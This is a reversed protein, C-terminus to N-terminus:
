PVSTGTTVFPHVTQVPNGQHISLLLPFTASVIPLYNYLTSFTVSFSAHILPLSPAPYLHLLPLSPLNSIIALSFTLRSFPLLFHYKLLPSLSVIFLYLSFFIKSNFIYTHPLLICSPLPLSTLPFPSVSFPSAPFLFHVFPSPHYSSTLHSLSTVPVIVSFPYPYSPCPSHLFPYSPLDSTFLFFTLVHFCLTLPIPHCSPLSLLTVLEHVAAGGWSNDRKCTVVPTQIVVVVVAVAVIVAVAVAVVHWNNNDVNM